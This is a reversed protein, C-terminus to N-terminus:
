KGNIEKRRDGCEREREREVQKERKEVRESAVGGDERRGADNWWERGPVFLVYV